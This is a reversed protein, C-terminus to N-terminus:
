HTLRWLMRHLRELLEEPAQLDFGQLYGWAQSIQLAARVEKASGFAYRFHKTKDKGARGSGEALNLAISTAGRRLQDALGRDVRELREVVKRLESILELSVRYCDFNM